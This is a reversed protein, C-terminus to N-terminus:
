TSSGPRGSPRAPLREPHLPDRALQDAGSGLLHALRARPGAARAPRHRRLLRHVAQARHWAVQAALRPRAGPDPAARRLRRQRVADVDDRELMVLLDEARDRDAGALYGTVHQAHAALEVELGLEQVVAVARRLPEPETLPGSTAVAGLTMGPALVPVAQPTV